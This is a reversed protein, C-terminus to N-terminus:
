FAISLAATIPVTVARDFAEAGDIGDALAATEDEDAFVYFGAGRVALEVSQSVDYGVEIGANVAPYTETFDGADTPGVEGTEITTANAGGSVVVSLPSENPTAQLDLGAGYHWLRVDATTASNFLDVNGDVTFALQEAVPFGLEAGLATGMDDTVDSLDAVPMTPGARLSLSTGGEAIQADLREGPVFALAASLIAVGTIKLAHM